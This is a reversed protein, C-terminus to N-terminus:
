EKIFKGQFVEDSNNEAHISYLGNNLRSIDLRNNTSRSHIVLRGLNDFVKVTKLQANGYPSIIIFDKAPSPFVFANKLIDKQKIMITGSYDYKGDTDLQRLRYLINGSGPNTDTFTYNNIGTGDQASQEGVANFSQGDSSKEIIYKLANVESTTAWNLIVSGNNQRTGSFSIWKVPLLVGSWSMNGISFSRVGATSNNPNDSFSIVLQTIGTTISVDIFDDTSNGQTGRASATTTGSGTITPGSPRTMTINQASNVNKATVVVQDGSSADTGDIDYIRFSIGSVAPSFNFTYVVTEPITAFTINSRVACNVSCDNASGSPNAKYKVPFGANMRNTNGTINLSVTSAPSGISGFNTSLTGTTYSVSNWDLDQSFATYFFLLAVLSLISRM